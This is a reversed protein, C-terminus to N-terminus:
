KQWGIWMKTKFYQWSVDFNHNWSQRLNQRLNVKLDDYSKLYILMTM